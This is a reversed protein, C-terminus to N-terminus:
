DIPHDIAYFTSSLQQVCNKFEAQAPSLGLTACAVQERRATEGPSAFYFSGAAVLVEHASTQSAAPEAPESHENASHLVCLALDSSGPQLGQARCREEAQQVVETDRVGQLSDSLSVICGRYHSTWYDLKDNGLWNGGTLRERPSLGMVNKCIDAVRANSTAGSSPSNLEPPTACGVVSTGALVGSVVSLWLGKGINM